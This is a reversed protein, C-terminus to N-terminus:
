TYRIRPDLYAYLIDVILNGVIYFGAFLMVVAQVVAFDRGLAAGLILQGMGPWSFVTETTISGVLLASTIVGFYTLPAVAANRLCHKWVVKWEPLGKIRALKVYESDLVDLMSSRVLRMIAAVQFWGLTIAPLIIHSLGGRGSTPLWGLKVALIWILIIGLWFPPLAQGLMAFGKGGRDFVGDRNRATLVGLPVAIVLSILVSLGALQATAPLREAILGRTSTGRWKFSEGLDGRFMNGMYDLYQEIIPENLGWYEELALRDAQTGEGPMLADVPSGTVRILAFVVVSIVWLAILSHFLRVLIFRQM